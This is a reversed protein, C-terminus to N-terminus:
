APPLLAQWIHAPDAKAAALMALVQGLVGSCERDLTQALALAQERDDRKVAEGVRKALESMGYARVAGSINVLSHLAVRAGGTDWAALHENLQAMREVVQVRFLELMQVLVDESDVFAEHLSALSIGSPTIEGIMEVAMTTQPQVVAFWMSNRGLERLCLRFSDCTWLMFQAEPTADPLALVYLEALLLKEGSLVALSM